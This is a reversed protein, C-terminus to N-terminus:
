KPVLHHRGKVVFNQITWKMHRALEEAPIAKTMVDARNDKGAVKAVEDQLWLQGTEVQKLKGDEEAPSERQQM